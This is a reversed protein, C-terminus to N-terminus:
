EPHISINPHYGKNTFFLSVGTTTNPSNNYAFEALPLLDSWNDQQYNCFICLYQELTQNVHETQGDGEPHYRSMFHLHMDLATSLSRFFRSVFKSGWDSTVHELVGHKSFIHIIFLRALKTSTITDMTPIFISQKSFCDVVVLISTFGSSALLQEIFDMSISNWPKEPVPLQQLTRYPKHCQAKSHMCTTCSATTRYLLGYILGSTSKVFSRSPRTRDSIDPFSTTTITNYSAYVFTTLTLFMFAIMVAYFDMLALPGTLTWLNWCTDPPFPTQLFHM